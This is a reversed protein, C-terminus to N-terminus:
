WKNYQVLDSDNIGVIITTYGLMYPHGIILSPADTIVADLFKEQQSKFVNSIM